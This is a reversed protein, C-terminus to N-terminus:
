GQAATLERVKDPNNVQWSNRAELALRVGKQIESEETAPFLSTLPDRREMIKLADLELRGAAIITDAVNTVAQSHQIVEKLKDKSLDPDNLKKLENFLVTRLENLDM